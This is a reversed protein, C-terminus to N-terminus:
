DMDPDTYVSVEGIVADQLLDMTDQNILIGDQSNKDTTFVLLYSRSLFNVRTDDASITIYIQQDLNISFYENDVTIIQLYKM